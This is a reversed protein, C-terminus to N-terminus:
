LIKDVASLRKNRNTYWIAAMAGAAAGCPLGAHPPSSKGFLPLADAL